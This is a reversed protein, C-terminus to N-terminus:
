ELEEDVTFELTGNDDSGLLRTIAAQDLSFSRQHARSQFMQPFEVVVRVEPAIGPNERVEIWGRRGTPATRRDRSSKVLVVKGHLRRVADDLPVRLPVPPPNM